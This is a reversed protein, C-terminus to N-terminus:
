HSTQTASTTTDAPSPRGVQAPASSPPPELSSPSLERLRLPEKVLSLSDIRLLLSFSTRLSLPTSTSSGAGLFGPYPLWRVAAGVCYFGLQLNESAYSSSPLSESRTSRQRRLSDPHLPPSCSTRSTMSGPSEPGFTSHKQKETSGNSRRDLGSSWCGSSLWVLTVPHSWSVCVCM